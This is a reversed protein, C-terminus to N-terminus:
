GVFRIELALGILYNLLEFEKRCVHLPAATPWHATWSHLPLLPFAPSAPSSLAPDLEDSLNVETAVRQKLRHPQPPPQQFHTTLM